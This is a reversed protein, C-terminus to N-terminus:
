IFAPALKARVRRILLLLSIPNVLIFNVFLWGYSTMLHGCITLSDEDEHIIELIGWHRLSFNSGFDSMRSADYIPSECKSIVIFLLAVAAIWHASVYKKVVWGSFQYFFFNPLWKPGWLEFTGKKNKKISLELLM